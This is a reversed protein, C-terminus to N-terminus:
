HIITRDRSLMQRVTSAVKEVTEGYGHDGSVVVDAYERTPEVFTVHMPRVTELYQAITDGMSRGREETDRRLRRIFRIDAPADVFVMLDLLERLERWYLALIGEFVIVNKPEVRVTWDTRAHQEFSYVPAEIAMGSKLMHIQSILLDTEFAEPCDYNLQAREAFALHGRDKYYSDQCVMTVGEEALREGLACALTTKGAGTGGAIGITVVM